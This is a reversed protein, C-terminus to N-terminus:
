KCIKCRYNQSKFMQEQEEISIGYTTTFHYNQKVRKSEPRRRTKAGATKVCMKCQITLGDPRSKNKYFKLMKADEFNGKSAIYKKILFNM